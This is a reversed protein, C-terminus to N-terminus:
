RWGGKRLERSEMLRQRAWAGWLNPRRAPPRAAVAALSEEEMLSAVAAMIAALRRAEREERATAVEAEAKAVAVQPEAIAAEAKAVAAQPEAVAAEAKAVAAEPEAVAVEAKAPPPSFLRQLGVIFLMLVALALFVVGMGTLGVYVGEIM